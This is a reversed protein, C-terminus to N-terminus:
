SQTSAEFTWFDLDDLDISGHGSAELACCIQARHEAAHLCAQGLLTSRLITRPGDDDEFTVPEDALWVQALLTADIERLQPLLSGLDAPTRVWAVDLEPTGTLCYRYWSAGVIIHAALRGAPWHGPAYRADMAPEPLAAFQRFFREDAWALHALARTMDVMAPLRGVVTVV